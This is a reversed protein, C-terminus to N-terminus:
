IMYQHEILLLLLYKLDEYPSQALVHMTVDMAEMTPSAYSAKMDFWKNYTPSHVEHRAHLHYM